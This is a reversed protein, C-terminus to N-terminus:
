RKRRSNPLRLTTVPLSPAELDAARGRRAPPKTPRSAKRRREVEVVDGGRRVEFRLDGYSAWKQDDAYRPNTGARPAGLTLGPHTDLLHRRLAECEEESDAQLRVKVTIDM